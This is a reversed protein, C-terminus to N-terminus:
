KKEDSNFMKNMTDNLMQTSNDKIDQVSKKFDQGVNELILKINAKAVENALERVVENALQDATVGGETGINTLHIDQLDISKKALNSLSATMKTGVINFSDVSFRKEHKANNEGSSNSSSGGVRKKFVQMNDGDPGVEYVIVPQNITVEHIKVIPKFFSKFDVGVKVSGVELINPQTFGSPNAIKLDDISFFGRELAVSVSGVYVGVGLVEPGYKEIGRKIIVDMYSYVATVAAVIIIILFLLFKKM